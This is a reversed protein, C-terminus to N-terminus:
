FSVGSQLIVNAYAHMRRDPRSGPANQDDGEIGRPFDSGGGDGSVDGEVGSASPPQNEADGRGCLGEGGGARHPGGGADGSLLAIRAPGGPRNAGDGGPDSARCRRCGIPGYPGDRQDGKFSPQKLAD